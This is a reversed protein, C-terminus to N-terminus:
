AFITGNNGICWWASGIWQLTCADGINDIGIVGSAGQNWGASNVIVDVNGTGGDM